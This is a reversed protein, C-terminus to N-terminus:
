CYFKPNFRDLNSSCGAVVHLLSEPELCFPCESSSSLGWKQLNKRTPLSNNIYRIIFNFINKPLKSQCTPWISNVQPLSFFSGRFKADLQPPSTQAFRRITNFVSESGLYGPTSSLICLHQRSHAFWSEHSNILFFSLFEQAIIAIFALDHFHM